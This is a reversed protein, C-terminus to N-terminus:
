LRVTGFAAAYRPDDRRFTDPNTGKAIALYYALLQVPVVTLLPSLVEPLEPLAFVTADPTTPVATGVVWLSAGIARLVGCVESLRTLGAGEVAIAVAHDEASVTVIPGHLFQEVSMGDIAAYAAERAKLAAETATQANPGAGICFIRGGSAHLAGAVREVEGERRLVDEVQAPLAELAARWGAPDDAGTHEALATAVQALVTMAGLHSATYAASREIAVTRLVLDAEGDAFQSERGSIGICPVGAARARAVAEASFRKTGRHAMVIVADGERLAPPYAVFDFSGVAYAEAGAARLLAEGVQAAHYSTGIGVVFVRRAGALITAAAGAPEWGRTLLMRLDAPQRHITEYMAYAATAREVM